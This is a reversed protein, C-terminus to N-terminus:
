LSGQMASHESNASLSCQMIRPKVSSQSKPLLFSLSFIAECLLLSSGPLGSLPYPVQLVPTLVQTRIGSGVYLWTLYCVHTLRLNGRREAEGARPNCTVAVVGVSKCTHQPHFEHGGARMALVKDASGNGWGLKVM